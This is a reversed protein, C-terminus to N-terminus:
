DEVNCHERECVYALHSSCPFDNWSAIGDLSNADMEVCKENGGHDDPQVGDKRWPAYSWKTKGDQWRFQNDSPDRRGGIWNWKSPDATYAVAGVFAGEEHDSITVLYGGFSKCTAQAADWDKYDCFKKYCHRNKLYVHWASCPTVSDAIKTAVIVIGILSRLINTMMM